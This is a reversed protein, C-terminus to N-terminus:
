SQPAKGYEEDSVKELWDVAKGDCAEQIATHIISTTPSAGHWHKVGPPTWITDGKQIRRIPKGWEQILGSGETVILLQGRPHTHWASRAGQQFAVSACSLCAPEEGTVLPTVKVSGTFYEAPGPNSPLTETKLIKMEKSMKTEKSIAHNQNIFTFALLTILIIKKM